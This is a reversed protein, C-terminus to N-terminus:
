IHVNTKIVMPPQSGYSIGGRVFRLTCKGFTLTMFPKKPKMLVFNNRITDPRHQTDKYDYPNIYSSTFEHDFEEDSLAGGNRALTTYDPAAVLPREDADPYLLAYLIALYNQSNSLLANRKEQVMDNERALWAQACRMRNHGCFTGYLVFENANDQTNFDIPVGTHNSEEVPRMCWWCHKGPTANTIVQLRNTNMRDTFSSRAILEKPAEEQTNSVPLALFSKKSPTIPNM